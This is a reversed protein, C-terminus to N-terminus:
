GPLMELTRGPQLQFTNAEMKAQEKVKWPPQGSVTIKRGGRLKRRGRIDRRRNQGQTISLVIESPDM